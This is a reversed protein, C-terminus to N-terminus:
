ETEGEFRVFRIDMRYSLADVMDIADTMHDAMIEIVFKAPMGVVKFVARYTNM